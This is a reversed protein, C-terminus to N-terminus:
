PYLIKVTKGQDQLKIVKSFSLGLAYLYKNFMKHVLTQCEVKKQFTLDLETNNLPSHLPKCM